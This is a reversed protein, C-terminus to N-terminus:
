KKVRWLLIGVAITLPITGRVDNLILIMYLAILGFGIGVIGQKEVKSFKLKAM